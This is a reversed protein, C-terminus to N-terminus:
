LFKDFRFTIGQLTFKQAVRRTPFFFFFFFFYSQLQVVLLHNLCIYLISFYKYEKHTKQLILRLNSKWKSMILGKNELKLRKGGDVFWYISWQFVLLQRPFRLYEKQHISAKILVMNINVGFKKIKLQLQFCKVLVELEM